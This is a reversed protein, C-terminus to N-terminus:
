DRRKPKWRPVRTQEIDGGRQVAWLNNIDDELIMLQDEVDSLRAPLSQLVELKMELKTLLSSLRWAATLVAVFTVGSFTLSVLQMVAPLENAQM